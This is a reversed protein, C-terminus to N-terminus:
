FGTGVVTYKQRLGAPNNPFEPPVNAPDYKPLPQKFYTSIISRTVAAVSGGHGAQEVVAAIAIQPNDIPALTV